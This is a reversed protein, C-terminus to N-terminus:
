RATWTGEWLGSVRSEGLDELVEVSYTTGIEAVGVITAPEIVTLADGAGIRGDTDADDHDWGVLSITGGPPTLWVDIDTLVYTESADIIEIRFLQESAADTVPAPDDIVEADFSASPVCGASGLSLLLCISVLVPTRM